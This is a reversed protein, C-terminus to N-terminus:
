PTGAIYLITVWPSTVAAFLVWLRLWGTAMGHDSDWKSVVCPYIQNLVQEM